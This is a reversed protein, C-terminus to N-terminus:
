PDERPVNLYKNMFLTKQQNGFSFTAMNSPQKAAEKPPNQINSFQFEEGTSRFKSNM